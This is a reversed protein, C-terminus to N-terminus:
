NKKVNTNWWSVMEDIKADTYSKSADAAMAGLVVSGAGITVQDTVTEPNTNNKITQHVIKTTGAGVVFNIINKAIDTKTM